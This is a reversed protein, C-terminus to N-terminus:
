NAEPQDTTDPPCAILSPHGTQCAWDQYDVAAQVITGLAAIGIFIMILIAVLFQPWTLDLRQGIIEVPKGDWYLRGSRDIGLGGSESMSIPRVSAPWKSQDIPYLPVRRLEEERKRRQREQKTEPDSM